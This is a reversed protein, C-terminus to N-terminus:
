LHCADSSKDFRGNWIVLEGVLKDSQSAFQNANRGKPDNSKPSNLTHKWM